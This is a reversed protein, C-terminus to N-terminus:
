RVACTSKSPLVSTMENMEPDFIREILVAIYEFYRNEPSDIQTVPLALGMVM